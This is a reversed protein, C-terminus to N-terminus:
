FKTHTVILFIEIQLFKILRHFLILKVTLVKVIDVDLHISFMVNVNSPHEGQDQVNTTMLVFKQGDEKLQKMVKLVFMIKCLEQEACRQSIQKLQQLAELIFSIM